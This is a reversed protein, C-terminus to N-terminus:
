QPIKLTQGVRINNPDEIGNLTCIEDIKDISQNYQRCIGSLTEKEAVIHTVYNVEVGTPAADDPNETHVPNEPNEADAANETGAPNQEGAEVSVPEAPEPQTNDPVPEASTEPEAEPEAPNQGALTEQMNETLNSPIKELPIEYIETNDTNLEEESSTEIANQSLASVAQELSNVKSNSYFAGAGIIGILLLIAAASAYTRFNTTRTHAKQQLVLQRYQPRADKQKVPEEKLSFRDNAPRLREEKIRLPEEKPKLPEEWPMEVEVQMKFPIQGQNKEQYVYFGGKPSLHNKRNIYIYEENELTDLLFLLQHAGGFQERHIAEIEDTVKPNVGKLDLVWGVIIYDEYARKIERFVENWSRNDWKPVNGAFSIERVPIVGEIFTAYCKDECETHGMMVFIRKEQLEDQHIRDYAQKEIYIKEEDGPTGIQRIDKLNRQDKQVIDIM